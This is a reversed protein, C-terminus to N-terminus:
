NGELYNTLGLILKKYNSSSVDIGLKDSLQTSIEGIQPLGIGLSLLQQTQGFVYTTDGSLIIKGNNVVYVRRCYKVIDDLEHSVIIIATGKDHLGKLLQFLQKRALPDLGVTPEDLILYKPHMAIIGAIAAKRMQGGSLELPSREYYQSNLGVDELAQKAYETADSDSLGQNLCGFKVDEIVTKKFLQQEPYQFVIGVDKRLESLEKSKSIYKGNWLLSGQDPHLLGDLMRILTSKGSGAKGIIGVYDASNINLSVDDLAKFENDTKKNYSFSVNKLGLM